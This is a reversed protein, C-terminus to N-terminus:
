YSNDAMSLYLYGYGVFILPIVYFVGIVTFLLFIWLIYTLPFILIKFYNGKTIKYSIKFAEILSVKKDIIIFPIMQFRITLLWFGLLLLTSTKLSLIIRPLIDSYSLYGQIAQPDVMLSVNQYLEILVPIAPIYVVLFALALLIRLLVFNLFSSDLDFFNNFTLQNESRIHQILLKFALYVAFINLFVNLTLETYFEILDPLYKTLQSLIINIANMLFFPVFIIIFSDGFNNNVRKKAEKKIDKISKNM